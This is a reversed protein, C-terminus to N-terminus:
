FFVFFFSNNKYNYCYGQLYRFEITARCCIDDLCSISISNSFSLDTLLLISIEFDSDQDRRMRKLVFYVRSSYSAGLFIWMCVFRM